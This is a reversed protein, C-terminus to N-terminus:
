LDAWGPRYEGKRDDILGIIHPWHKECEPGIGYWRSREDTLETNCRMCRGIKEAYAIACGNHDVTVLLLEDEIMKNYVTVRQAEYNWIVVALKYEPGHQTQIKMTGKYKGSKPRSVRFFTFPQTSDLRSAYYGDPIGALMDLPIKTVLRNPAAWPDTVKKQERKLRDIYESAQKTTLKCAYVTDGGLDGIFKLQRETISPVVQVPRPPNYCDKVAQVSDHRRHCNGCIISATAVSPSISM